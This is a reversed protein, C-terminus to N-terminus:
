RFRCPAASSSRSAASRVTTRAASWTCCRRALPLQVVRVLEPLNHDDYRLPRGTRSSWTALTSSLTWVIVCRAHYMVLPSRLLAGDREFHLLLRAGVHDLDGSATRATSGASWACNGGDTCRTIRWSRETFMRLAKLSMWSVISMVSTRTTPTM